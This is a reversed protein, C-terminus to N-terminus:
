GAPPFRRLQSGRGLYWLPCGPQSSSSGLYKGEVCVEWWVRSGLDVALSMITLCLAGATGRSLSCVRWIRLLFILITKSMTIGIIPIATFSTFYYLHLPVCGWIVGRRNYTSRLCSFCHFYMVFWVFFSQCYAWPCFFLPKGLKNFFRPKSIFDSVQRVFGHQDFWLSIDFKQLYCQRYAQYQYHHAQWRTVFRRPQWWGIFTKKKIELM